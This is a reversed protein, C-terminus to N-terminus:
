SLKLLEKRAKRDFHQWQHPKMETVFPPKNNHYKGSIFKIVEAKNLDSNVKWAFFTRSTEDSTLTGFYIFHM